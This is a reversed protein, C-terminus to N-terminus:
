HFSPQPIFGSGMEQGGNVPGYFQRLFTAQGGPVARPEAAYMAPNHLVIGQQGFMICHVESYEGPRGVINTGALATSAAGAPMGQAIQLALPFVKAVRHCIVCLSTGPYRVAQKTEFNAIKRAYCRALMGCPIENAPNFGLASAVHPPLVERLYREEMALTRVQIGAFASENRRLVEMEAGRLSVRSAGGNLAVRHAFAQIDQLLSAYRTLGRAEQVAVFLAALMSWREDTEGALAAAHTTQSRIITIEDRLFAARQQRRQENAARQEATISSEDPMVLQVGTRRPESPDSKDMQEVMRKLADLDVRLVVEDPTSAILKELMRLNAGVVSDGDEGAADAMNPNHHSLRESYPPSM